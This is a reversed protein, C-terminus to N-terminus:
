DLVEYWLGSCPEQVAAVAHVLDRLLHELRDRGPQSEPLEDLLEVLAMAYWAVGRGWFTSSLGTAPEAWAANRDQDWAHYYLGTRPDRAHSALLTAQEVPTRYCYDRDGFRAGFGALFPQAMFIGDVWMEDPYVQKHWFGGEANRPFDDFRKRVTRAAASYKAQGTQDHLYLLLMGPQILDLNHVGRWDINGDADVFSDVWRQIYALIRPDGTRQHIRQLGLMVIGSNYEWGKHDIDTPDPWRTQIM